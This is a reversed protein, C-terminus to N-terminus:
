VPAAALQPSLFIPHWTFALPSENLYDCASTMERERERLKHDWSSEGNGVGLGDALGVGVERHPEGRQHTAHHLAEGHLGLGQRVWSPLEVRAGSSESSGAVLLYPSHPIPTSLKVQDGGSLIM